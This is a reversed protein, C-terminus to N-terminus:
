YGLLEVLNGSVDAMAKYHVSTFVEQYKSSHKRYHSESGDPRFMMDKNRMKEKSYDSALNNIIANDFEYGMFKFIASLTQETQAVLDEFKILMVNPDKNGFEFWTRMAAYKPALFNIAYLLGDEQSMCNLRERLIVIGQNLAHTEKASWYWSVALNRPDRFVYITKYSSPKEIFLDYLNYDVYLGPIVAGTPFQLRFDNIDYHHQPYLPLRTKKQVKEDSFIANLWQSGTKQVSCLYINELKTAAGSYIRARDIYFKAKRVNTMLNVRPSEIPNYIM